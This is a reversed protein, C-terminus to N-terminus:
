ATRDSVQKFEQSFLQLDCKRIPALHLVQPKHKRSRQSQCRMGGQPGAPCAKIKQSLAKAWKRIRFHPMSKVGATIPDGHLTTFVIAQTLKYPKLDRRKEGRRVPDSTSGQKRHKTRQRSKGDAM